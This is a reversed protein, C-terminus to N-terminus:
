NFWGISSQECMQMENVYGFGRPKTKRTTRSGVYKLLINDADISDIIDLFTDESIHCYVHGEEHVDRVIGAGAFSNFITVPTMAQRLASLALFLIRYPTDHTQHRRLTQLHQKYAGFVGLDLMQLYQTSNPPLTILKINNLACILKTYNSLHSSCNDVLLAAPSNIDLGLKNRLMDVYPVVCKPLQDPFLWNTMNTGTSEAIVVDINKRIGVKLFEDHNVPQKMIAYPILTDGSIAAAAMVSICM